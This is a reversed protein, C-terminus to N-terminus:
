PSVRTPHQRNRARPGEAIERPGDTSDRRLGQPLGYMETLGLRTGVASLRGPGLRPPSRGFGSTPLGKGSCSAPSPLVHPELVHRDRRRRYSRGANQWPCGGTPPRPIRSAWTGRRGGRPPVTRSLWVTCSALGPGARRSPSRVALRLRVTSSSSASGRRGPVRGCSPARCCAHKHRSWPKWRECAPLPRSSPRDLAGKHRLLGEASRTPPLLLRSNGSRDPLLVHYPTIDLCNPRIASFSCRLEKSFSM